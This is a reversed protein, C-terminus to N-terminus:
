DKFDTKIKHPKNNWSGPCFKVPTKTVIKWCEKCLYMQCIPCYYASQLEEIPIHVRDALCTELHITVKSELLLLRKKIRKELTFQAQHCKQDVIPAWHKLEELKTQIEEYRVKIYEFIDPNHEVFLNTRSIRNKILRVKNLLTNMKKESEISSVNELYSKLDKRYKNFSKELRSLYELRDIITLRSALTNGLEKSISDFQNLQKQIANLQKKFISRLTKHITFQMMRSTIATSKLELSFLGKQLQNLQELNLSVLPTSLLKKQKQLDKNLQASERLIVQLFVDVQELLKQPLSINKKM